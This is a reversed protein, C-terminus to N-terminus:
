QNMECPFIPGEEHAVHYGNVARGWILHAQKSSTSPFRTRWQEVSFTEYSSLDSIASATLIPGHCCFFTDCVQFHFHGFFPGFRGSNLCLQRRLSGLIGRQSLRHLVDQRAQALHLPLKGLIAMVTAFWRRTIAGSSLLPALAVPALSLRSPLWSM